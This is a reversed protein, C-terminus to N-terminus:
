KILIFCKCNPHISLNKIDVLRVGDRDKCEQCPDASSTVWYANPAIAKVEERVMNRMDSALLYEFKKLNRDLKRDFSEEYTDINNSYTICDRVLFYYWWESLTQPLDGKLIYKEMLDLMSDKHKQDVNNDPLSLIYYEDFLANFSMRVANLGVEDLVISLALTLIRLYDFQKQNKPNIRLGVM